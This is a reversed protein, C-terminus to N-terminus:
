GEQTDPPVIPIPCSSNLCYSQECQTCQIHPHNLGGIWYVFFTDSSASCSCEAVQALFDQGSETFEHM